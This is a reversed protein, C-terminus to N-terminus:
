IPAVVQVTETLPQPTEQAEEASWMAQGTTNSVGMYKDASQLAIGVDQPQASRGMMFPDIDGGDARDGRDLNMQELTLQGNMQLFSSQKPGTGMMQQRKREYAQRQADQMKKILAVKDASESRCPSHSAM